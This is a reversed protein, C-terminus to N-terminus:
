ATALANRGVKTGDTRKRGRGDRGDTRKRGCGDTRGDTGDTRTRGNTGATADRREDARGNTQGEDDFIAVYAWM